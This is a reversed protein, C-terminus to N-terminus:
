KFTKDFSNWPHVQIKQFHVSVGHIHVFISEKSSLKFDNLVQYCCERITNCGLSLTVFNDVLISGSLSSSSADLLESLVNSLRLKAILNHIISGLNEELGFDHVVDVLVEEHNGECGVHAFSSFYCLISASILFLCLVSQSPTFDGCRCVLELKWFCKNLVHLFMGSKPVNDLFSLALELPFSIDRSGSKSVKFRKSSRIELGVEALDDVVDVLGGVSHETVHGLSIVLLM